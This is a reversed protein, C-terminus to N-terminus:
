KFAKNFSVNTLTVDILFDTLCLRGILVPSEMEKRDTLTFETEITKNLIKVPTFITYRKESQGNSSKVERTTFKTSKYWKESPLKFNPHDAIKFFLADNEVKFESCHMANTYAGTDIKCPIQKLGLESFDFYDSRGIIDKM